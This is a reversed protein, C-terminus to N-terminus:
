IRFGGTNDTTTGTITGKVVVSAGEVPAGQENTVKGKVTINQANASTAFLLLQLLMAIALTLANTARRRMLSLNIKKNPM